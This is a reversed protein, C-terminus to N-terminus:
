CDTCTVEDRYNGTVIKIKGYFESVIGAADAASEIM